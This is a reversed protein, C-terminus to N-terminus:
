KKKSNNNQPVQHKFFDDKMVDMQWFLSDMKRMNDRFRNSFFDKKYFDYKLLSDQFFLNNFYPENSFLYKQNFQNRFLNFISDQKVTDNKINSYYYSYTSDYRVINGNKDYEKNVKISTQPTGSIQEKQQDKKQGNCGQLMLSLAIAFTIIRRM